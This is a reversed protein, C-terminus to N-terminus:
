ESASNDQPCKLEFQRRFLPVIVAPIVYELQKKSRLNMYDRGMLLFDTSVDFYMALSILGEFSTRRTGCEM